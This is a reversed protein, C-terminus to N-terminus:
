IRKEGSWLCWLKWLIAAIVMIALFKMVLQFLIYAMLKVRHPLMEKKYKVQDNLNPYETKPVSKGLFECLPEWGERVDYILLNERPVIRKVHANHERFVRKGHSPLDNWFVEEYYTQLGESFLTTPVLSFRKNLRVLASLWGVYNGWTTAIM